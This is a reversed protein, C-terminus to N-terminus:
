ARTYVADLQLLEGGFAGVRGGAAIRVAPGHVEFSEFGANHAHGFGGEQYLGVEARALHSTAILVVVCVLSRMAHGFLLARAEASTMTTLVQPRSDARSRSTESM